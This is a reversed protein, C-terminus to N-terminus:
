MFAIVLPGIFGIFFGTSNNPNFNTSGLARFALLSIRTAWYFSSLTSFVRLPGDIKCMEYYSESIIPILNNISYILNSFVLCIILKGTSTWHNRTKLFLSIIIVGGIFSLGSFIQNIHLLMQEQEQTLDRSSDM